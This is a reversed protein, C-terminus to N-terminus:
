AELGPRPRSASFGPRPRPRPRTPQPWSTQPWLTEQKEDANNRENKIIKNEVQQNRKARQCFFTVRRCCEKGLANRRIGGSSTFVQICCYIIYDFFIKDIKVNLIQCSLQICTWRSPRSHPLFSESEVGSFLLSSLKGKKPNHRKRHQM